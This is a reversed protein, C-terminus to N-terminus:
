QELGLGGRVIPLLWCSTGLVEGLEDRSLSALSPLKPRKQYRGYLQYFLWPCILLLFSGVLSDLSVLSLPPLLDLISPDIVLKFSMSLIKDQNLPQVRIIHKKNSQPSPRAKTM